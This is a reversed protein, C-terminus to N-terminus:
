KLNGIQSKFLNRIGDPRKCKKSNEFIDKENHTTGFIDLSNEPKKLTGGYTFSNNNTNNDNLNFIQNNEFKKQLVLRTKEKKEDNILAGPLCSINSKYDKFVKACFSRNGSRNIYKHDDSIDNFDRKVGGPM